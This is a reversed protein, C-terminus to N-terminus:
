LLGNIIWILFLTLRFYKIYIILRIILRINIIFKNILTKIKFQQFILQITKVYIYPKINYIYTNKM